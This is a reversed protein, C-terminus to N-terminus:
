LFMEAYESYYKMCEIWNEKSITIDHMEEAFTRARPDFMNYYGSKRTGEYALFIEKM